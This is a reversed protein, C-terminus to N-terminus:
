KVDLTLFKTVAMPGVGPPLTKTRQAQQAVAEKVGFEKAVILWPRVPELKEAHRWLAEPSVVVEQGNGVTKSATKAARRAARRKAEYRKRRAVLKLDVKSDVKSDVASGARRRRGNAPAKRPRGRKQRVEPETPSTVPPQTLNNLALQVVLDRLCADPLATVLARVVTSADDTARM